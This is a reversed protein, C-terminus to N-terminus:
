NNSLTTSVIPGEAMKLRLSEFSTAHLWQPADSWVGESSLRSRATQCSAPFRWTVGTFFDFMM